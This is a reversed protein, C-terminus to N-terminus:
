RPAQALQLLHPESGHAMGDEVRLVRDASALTARRHAVLIVTRDVLAESCAATFIAEGEDDFMSTAEDFILIPPNKILVRALAIKQRQGGSLRVGRDGILTDFGDPLACVFEHAQSLRAADQITSESPHEAGFAINERITGNFLLPLQPVLGIQSRLDSLPYDRIDRGDLTINGGQPEYYRMLLNIIATKGAGNSGVLAVTEGPAIELSLGQLTPKRDPYGFQVNSFRIAGEARRLRRRPLETDEIREDFVSQLRELTGRASQVRGYVDALSGIPRTLLAAYFIFSFLETASMEGSRVSHGALLLVLVAACAAILGILPQLAAYIRGQRITLRSASSVATRYRDAEARERNFAKIAPLIELMQEASAVVDAEARQLSIALGRLRRGVIKLILYFAPVLIPVILALHWDMRFLVVIAGFVTLLRAPLSVLTGTFFDSLKAVEYTMLALTDGGSRSDHFPMPLRQVHEYVRQRLDALLRASTSASQYAVVFNLIATAVLCLLLVAVISASPNGTGAVITGLVRAAFWPIALLLLSSLCTLVALLVLPKRYSRAYGLLQSLQM